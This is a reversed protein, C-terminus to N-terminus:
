IYSYWENNRMENLRIWPNSTTISWITSYLFHSTYIVNSHLLNRNLTINKRWTNKRAPDNNCIPQQGTWGIYSAPMAPYTCVNRHALQCDPISLLVYTSTYCLVSSASYQNCIIIINYYYCPIWVSVGLFIFLQGTCNYLPLQSVTNSEKFTSLIFYRCLFGKYYMLFFSFTYGQDLKRMNLMNIQQSYIDTFLFHEIIVTDTRWIEYHPQQKSQIRTNFHDGM